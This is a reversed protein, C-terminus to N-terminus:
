LTVLIYHYQVMGFGDANVEFTSEWAHLSQALLSHKPRLLLQDLPISPGSYALWRCM